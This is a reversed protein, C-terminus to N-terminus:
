IVDRIQVIFYLSTTQSQVFKIFEFAEEFFLEHRFNLYAYCIWQDPPHQSKFQKLSMNPPLPISVYDPPVFTDIKQIYKFDLGNENFHVAETEVNQIKFCPKLDIHLEEESEPQWTAARFRLESLEHELEEM